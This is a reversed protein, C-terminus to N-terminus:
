DNKFMGMNGRLYDMYGRIIYNIKGKKNKEIMLVKLAMFFTGFMFIIRKMYSVKNKHLVYFKNRVMYYYRIDSHTMYHLTYGLIKRTAKEGLNHIIRINNLRVIKFNNELLRYCLDQDVWDIFLAEDFGGIKKITKCHIINGSTLALNVYDFSWKGIYEETNAAYLAIRDKFYYKSIYAIMKYADDGRFATDQDMTLLFDMGDEIAKCLAINLAYAIGRNGGLWIYNINSNREYKKQISKNKSESNDIVYLKNVANSYSCINDIVDDLPNYLVVVASFNM